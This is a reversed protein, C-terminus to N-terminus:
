SSATVITFDDPRPGGDVLHDLAAIVAQESGAPVLGVRISETGLAAAGDSALQLSPTDDSTTWREIGDDHTPGGGIVLCYTDMGLRLDNESNTLSRQVELTRGSDDPREGLVLYEAELADDSRFAVAM